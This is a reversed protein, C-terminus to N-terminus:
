TAEETSAPWQHSYGPGCSWHEGGHGKAGQCLRKTEPHTATCPVHTNGWPPLDAMDAETLFGPAETSAPAERTLLADFYRRADSLALDFEGDIHDAHKVLVPWAKSLSTLATNVQLRTPVFPPVDEVHLRGDSDRYARKTWGMSPSPTGALAKRAITRAPSPMETTAIAVLARRLADSERDAEIQTACSPGFLARLSEREADTMPESEGGAPDVPAGDAILERLHAATVVIRADNEPPIYASGDPWEGEM